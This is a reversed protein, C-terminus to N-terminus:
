VKMMLFECFMKTDGFWTAVGISPPALLVIPQLCPEIPAGIHKLGAMISTRQRDRMRRPLSGSEPGDDARFPLDKRITSLKKKGRLAKGM